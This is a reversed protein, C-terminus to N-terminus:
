FRVAVSLGGGRPTVIPVLAARPTRPALISAGQQSKNAAVTADILGIITMGVAAGAGATFYKRQQTTQTYPAPVGNPDTYNITETTTQQVMAMGLGAGSAVLTLVGRITHGVYFQGVGPILSRAFAGAPSYVPRRLVEIARGVEVRDDVTPANVRYQELDTLAAARDGRAARALGRNFWGEASKPADRVVDDFAKQAADYRGDDFFSLGLRFQVQVNEATRQRAQPVLRQLRDRVDAAERGAPSLTLYRCLETVARTSDNLEELARALDYAIREDGPNLQAARLFADRAATQDGVLSAEQGATALRRAEANDRRAAPAQGPPVVDCGPAPGVTLTRKPSLRPPGQQADLARASLASAGLLLVGCLLARRPEAFRLSPRPM